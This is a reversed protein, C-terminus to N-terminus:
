KKLLEVEAKLENIMAQQQINSANLEQVAKILPGILEDYGISLVDKGGNISHDQYGAFDINLDTMVQKVEQAILGHHKRNRKKSGDKEHEITEIVKETIVKGAEDLKQTGDENLVPNEKEVYEIYDERMDWRFDVPRLKNIFGLGLVTDTIDAKDRMDSRNQVTGYVYTTTSSDGLQVQNSGTVRTGNGIGTCNQLGNTTALANYGIATNNSGTTNMGLANSGIAINYNGTTNSNLTNAGVATNDTGNNDLLACTGIATVNISGEGGRSLADLGLVTNFFGKGRGVILGNVTIDTAFTSSSAASITIDSTGDFDVGNIKRATQLKTATDANGGNAPLNTPFDSIETKSHTHSTEAKGNVQNQLQTLSLEAVIFVGKVKIVFFLFVFNGL